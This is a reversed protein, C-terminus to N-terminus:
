LSDQLMMGGLKMGTKPKCDGQEHTTQKEHLLVNM